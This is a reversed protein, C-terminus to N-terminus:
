AEGWRLHNAHTAMLSSPFPANTLCSQIWGRWKRGCGMEKMVTDLSNWDITDYAKQFDLKLLVGAKRKRKLRNVIENAILAGDLIQRRSVFATQTEGILSPLVQKLRRSLIKTIIKYASGVLSILRVDAV